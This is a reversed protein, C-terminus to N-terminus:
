FWPGLTSASIGSTVAAKLHAPKGLVVSSQNEQGQLLLELRQHRGTMKVGGGCTRLGLIPSCRLLLVFSLLPPCHQQALSPGYDKKLFSFYFIQQGQM